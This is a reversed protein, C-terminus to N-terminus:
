GRRRLQQVGQWLAESRMGSKCFALVPGPLEDLADAFAEVQELSIGGGVPIYRAALGAEEAAARIAAFSPQGAGEGDPRNVIIAGFGQRKVDAMDSPQIQGAVSLDDTLKKSNM